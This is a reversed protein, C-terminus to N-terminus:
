TVEKLPYALCKRIPFRIEFCIEGHTNYAEISGGHAIVIDKCISLGIGYGGIDSHHGIRYFREFLPKLDEPALPESENFLLIKLTKEEKVVTIRIQKEKETYKFANDILNVMLRVLLPGDGWFLGTEPDIQIDIKGERDYHRFEQLAVGIIDEFDCWEWQLGANDEQLRASDLLSSALRNIRQASDDIQMLIDRRTASDISRDKLLLSINGLISSLPTKLDHSLTHIFIEKIANSQIRKAQYTIVYGVAFFIVFSWAHALDHVNFSYQPPVNLVDFVVVTMATVVTTAYMDGRLAIVLVPVLYILAINILGLLDAFLISLAAILSLLALAVLYHRYPFFISRM